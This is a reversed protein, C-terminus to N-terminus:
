PSFNSQQGLKYDGDMRRTYHRWFLKNDNNTKKIAENKAHSGGLALGVM